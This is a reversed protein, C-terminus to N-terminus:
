WSCLKLRFFFKLKTYSCCFKGSFDDIIAGLLFCLLWEEFCLDAYIHVPVLCFHKSFSLGIYSAKVDSSSSANFFSLSFSITKMTNIKFFKDIKLKKESIGKIVSAQKRRSKMVGKGCFYDYIFKKIIDEWVKWLNSFRQILLLLFFFWVGKRGLSGFPTSNM